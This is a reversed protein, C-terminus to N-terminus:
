GMRTINAGAGATPMRIDTRLTKRSRATNPGFSGDKSQSREGMKMFSATPLAPAPAAGPQIPAPMKPTPCM